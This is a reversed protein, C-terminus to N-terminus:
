SQRHKRAYTVAVKKSKACDKLDMIRGLYPNLVSKKLPVAPAPIDNKPFLEQCWDGHGAKPSNNTEYNIQCNCQSHHSVHLNKM